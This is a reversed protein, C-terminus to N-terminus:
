PGGTWRHDLSFFIPVAVAGLDLTMPETATRGAPSISRAQLAPLGFQGIVAGAIWSGIVAQETAAAAMWGGVEDLM